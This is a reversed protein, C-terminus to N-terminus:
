EYDIVIRGVIIFLLRPVFKSKQRKQVCALRLLVEGAKDREGRGGVGCIINFVTSRAQDIDIDSGNYQIPILPTPPLLANKLLVATSKEFKLQLVCIIRKM